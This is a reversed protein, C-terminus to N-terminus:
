STKIKRSLENVRRMIEDVHFQPFNGKEVKIEGNLVVYKIDSSKAAYVLHSVPNFVPTLHPKQLDFIVFDARKGPELSGIKNQLGLVKAGGLTAMHLVDWASLVTPDMVKVKHILATIHIEEVFDLNNNSAAGDTGIGIKIERKLFEPVPAIGSALKLNSTPNHSVGVGNREYIEIEEEDLWVSHAAVVNDSLFGIEDLYRVPSKRYRKKMEKVEDETEAVHILCPVDYKKSLETSSLLLEKSCTYPAHPAVAPIIIEDGKWEKIFNQTFDLAEEPNKFSPTEFDILGEGLVARIGMDKAIKAAEDQFFYMDAYTTIGSGLMELIALPLVDRIFERSVFKWESPWIYEELWKMLPLDDALGRFGVMAAHTHTNIFGPTMVSLGGDILRRYDFKKGEERKGIWVIKGDRIAIAGDKIVEGKKRMTVIFSSTAFMDIKEM